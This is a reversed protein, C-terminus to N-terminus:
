RRSEPTHVFFVNLDAPREEDGPWHMEARLETESAADKGAVFQPHQELATRAKKLIATLGRERVFMVIALKTDRWGTYRFLQDITKTFGDPGDWFKCECIFLNRGDHRILIDTKGENNFAEAHARGEYHTNLTAVITQRRDEEGMERYTGPSQEMQKGQMRIVGLIHEFVREELVPELAPAKDDARTKPLSPVPRRVLVDPIYTKGKEGPRRIPISSEALHADRQEVRQRRAEIAQKAERELAANFADIEGRAWELYQSVKNIFAQAQGDINPKQDQAYDITLLLEDDKVRGQPWTTTFSSTRLQFVGADGEFPVHVVTRYGPYNRALNSAYDSFYRGPYRSVDIKVDKPADMWVDDTKLIPCAVAFHHALSSAWEDVDAQKLNEESEADVAERMKKGQAELALRLEGGGHFLLDNV